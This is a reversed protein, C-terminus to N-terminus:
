SNQFWSRIKFLIVLRVAIGCFFLSVFVGVKDQTDGLKIKTVKCPMNQSGFSKPQRSCFTITVDKACGPLLHGTCPSLTVEAPPAWTFRVAEASHNTVTLSLQKPVGVACDGFRVHNERSAAFAFACDDHSHLSHHTQSVVVKGLHKASGGSATPLLLFAFPFLCAFPFFHHYSLVQVIIIM